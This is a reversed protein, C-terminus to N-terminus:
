VAPATRVPFGAPFRQDTAGLYDVEPRILRNNAAQEMAHAAWGATRAIAFTPPFLDRPLGVAELVLAAYFEVNTYLKQDPRTRRLERLAVEEVRHALAFRDPAAVQEAIGRLLEARPDEVKYVRHGFGMLREKRALADRVWGEARDAGGVGDLMDLVKQPAGGHLPGKLAGVGATAASILDSNTSLVVRLAFTSANMGHDAVIDFYSELAWVARATPADGTTMRLYDAVHGLAPTPGVPALGSRRRHFRALLTPAKAILELGQAVTPPYGFAAGGLASLGTRLADMPPTTPSLADIAAAAEPPIARRSALDSTLTGPPDTDSPRGFLLLHVTSEYGLHRVVDAIDYGRYSLLGTTGGVLSITSEGVVVDELGRRAADM